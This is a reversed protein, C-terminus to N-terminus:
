NFFNIETICVSNRCDLYPFCVLSLVSNFWLVFCYSLTLYYLGCKTLKNGDIIVNRILNIKELRLNLCNIVWEKFYFSFSHGVSSVCASLLNDFYFTKTLLQWCRDTTVMHLGSTTAMSHAIQNITPSQDRSHTTTTVGHGDMGSIQGITVQGDEDTIGVELSDTIKCGTAETEKTVVLEAIGNRLLQLPNLLANWTNRTNKTM